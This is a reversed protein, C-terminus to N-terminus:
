LMWLLKIMLWYTMGLKDVVLFHYNLPMYKVDSEFSNKVVCKFFGNNSYINLMSNWVNATLSDSIKSIETGGEKGGGWNEFKMGEVWIKLSRERKKM